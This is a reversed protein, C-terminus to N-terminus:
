VTRLRMFQEETEDLITMCRTPTLPALPQVELETIAFRIVAELSIRDTPIHANHFDGPRMFTPQALLGQGIHLHGLPYPNNAARERNWHFQLVEQEQEDHLTKRTFGYVYSLTKVTYREHGEAGDQEYIEVEQGAVFYFGHRSRLRASNMDNLAVPYTVNAEMRGLRGILTFRGLSICQLAKRM